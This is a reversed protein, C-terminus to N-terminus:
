QLFGTILEGTSRNEFTFEHPAANTMRLPSLVEQGALARALHVWILRPTPSGKGAFERRQPVFEIQWVDNSTQVNVFPIPNKSFQLVTRGDGHTAFFLEGAVEPAAESTRWVAQGQRAKWGPESLNAAPLPAATRCGVGTAAVAMM